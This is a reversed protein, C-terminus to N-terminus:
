FRGWLTSTILGANTEIRVIMNGPNPMLTASPQVANTVTATNINPTQSTANGPVMTLSIPVTIQQPVRQAGPFSILNHLRVNQPPALNLSALNVAQPLTATNSSPHTSTLTFNGSPIASSAIADSM